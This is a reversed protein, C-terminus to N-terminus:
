GRVLELSETFTMGFPNSPSMVAWQFYAAELFRATEGSFQLTFSAAGSGDTMRSASVDAENYLFCGTAGLPGLDFPLPLGFVNTNGFGVLLVAMANGNAGALTVDFPTSLTPMMTSSAISGGCSTGTTSFAYPPSFDLAQVLVTFNPSTADGVAYVQYSVDAQLDLQAPGFVAATSGAGFITADYVGVPVETAAQNPNTLASITLIRAANQDIGVDVPGAQATHRVAVRANGSGIPALDEEFLSLTPTGAATLHAIASYEGDEELVVNASLITAGNLRVEVQTPGAPVELPGRIDTYDFSFLVADDAVIEVPAPLMPVGHLISIRAHANAPSFDVAQVVLTFSPAGAVGVAYVRYSIDEELMLNAPGFAVTTTTALFLSADFSGTPVDTAAQDTNSLNPITLIRIGNQDIGVDVTPAQATHRVTVRAQDAAIPSMDDTFLTVTPSGAETLHAIASYELGATLTISTSLAVAGNVWLEIPITGADVKLPGRVDTYDFTFLSNGAARVDVPGALGPIGHIISLRATQAELSLPLAVIATAFILSRM